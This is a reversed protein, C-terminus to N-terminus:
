IHPAIRRAIKMFKLLKPHLTPEGAQGFEVRGYPTTGQVVKMFNVFTEEEMFRFENRPFLRAACFDCRINCGRTIEVWYAWPNIKGMPKKKNICLSEIALQLQDSEIKSTLMQNKIKLLDFM